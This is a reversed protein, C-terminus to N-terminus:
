TEKVPLIVSEKLYALLANVFLDGVNKVRENLWQDFNLFGRKGALIALSVAFYYNNCNTFSSLSDKLYQSIDLVKSLNLANKDKRFQKNFMESVASILLDQNNKWIAELISISNNINTLYNPFLQSFVEDLLNSGKKPKLQSLAVILIDPFKAIPIEFLDHIIMYNHGESLELLLDLFDLCAWIQCCVPQLNNYKYTPNFEFNM